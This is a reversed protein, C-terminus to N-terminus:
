KPLFTAHALFDQLASESESRKFVFKSAIAIAAAGRKDRFLRSRALLYKARYESQTFEGGVWYWSWILCSSRASRVLTEHVQVPEGDVTQTSVGDSVRRWQPELYLVDQSSALRTGGRPSYYALYLTVQQAGAVYVEKVETSAGVFHPTWEPAIREAVLWPGTVTLSHAPLSASEPTAKDLFALLIPSLALLIVTAISTFLIPRVSIEHKTHNQSGLIGATVSAGRADTANVAEREPQERLSWGIALLLLTVLSFFLLGYIFHDAYAATASGRFEGLIVIGFVRLGNALIPVGASLMVFLIRRKWTRFAVGAYLFGVVLSSILFRLGSCAQAVEWMGSGVTLTRGELLVPIGVLDLAKVTFWATFDQLFPILSDGIPVALFLFGLPFQLERLADTGLEAWVLAIVMGVLVLNQVVVAEALAGLLWVFSLVALLPIAWLNPRPVLQILRERGLWVLYISIPFIFFGHAYSPNRWTEVLLAATKWYLLLLTVFSTVLVVLTSRWRHGADLHAFSIPQLEANLAISDSDSGNLFTKGRGNSLYAISSEIATGYPEGVLSSDASIRFDGSKDPTLRGSDGWSSLFPEAL